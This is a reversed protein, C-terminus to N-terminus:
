AHALAMPATIPTETVSIRTGGVAPTLIVEVRSGHAGDDWWWSLYGGPEETELLARREEWEEGLWEHRLAPDTLLEWATEADVPLVIESAVM